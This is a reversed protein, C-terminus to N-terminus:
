SSHPRSLSSHRWLVRKAHCGILDVHSLTQEEHGGVVVARLALGLMSRNLGLDLGLSRLDLGLADWHGETQCLERVENGGFDAYGDCNIPRIDLRGRALCCPIDLFSVVLKSADSRTDPRGIRNCRKHTLM